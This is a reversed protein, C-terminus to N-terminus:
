FFQTNLFFRHILFIVNPVQSNEFKVNFGRVEDVLYDRYHVVEENLAMDILYEISVSTLDDSEEVNRLDESSLDTVVMPIRLIDTLIYKINFIIYTIYYVM